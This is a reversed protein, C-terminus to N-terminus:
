INRTYKKNIIAENEFEVNGARTNMKNIYEVRINDEIKEVSKIEIEINSVRIGEYINKNREIFDEKSYDGKISAIEYMKEYEKQEIYSFYENLANKAQEFEMNLENELEKEKKNKLVLITTVTIGVIILILLCIILIKKKM